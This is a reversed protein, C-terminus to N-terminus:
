AELLKTPLLETGEGLYQTPCRGCSELPSWITCPVGCLGNMELAPRRRAGGSAEPQIGWAAIAHLDAAARGAHRAPECRSPLLQQQAGALATNGHHGPELRAM